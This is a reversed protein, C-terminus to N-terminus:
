IYIFVQNNEFWLFLVKEPYIVYSVLGNPNVPKSVFVMEVMAHVEESHKVQIAWVVCKSPGEMKKLRLFLNEVPKM